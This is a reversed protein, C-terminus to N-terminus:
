IKLSVTPRQRSSNSNHAHRFLCCYYRVTSYRVAAIASGPQSRRRM